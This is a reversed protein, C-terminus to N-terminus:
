GIESPEEGPEALAGALVAAIHSAGAVPREVFGAAPDYDIDLGGDVLRRAWRVATNAKAPPVAGGQAMASLNRLNTAPGSQTHARDVKWPLARRHDMMPKALGANRKAQLVGSETVGFHAALEANSWGAAALRALEARDVKARRGM